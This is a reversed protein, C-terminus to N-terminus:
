EGFLDKVAARVAPAMIALTAVMVACFLVLAVIGVAYYAREWPVLEAMRVLAREGPTM